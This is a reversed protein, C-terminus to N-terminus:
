QETQKPEHINGTVEYLHHSKIPLTQNRLDYENIHRIFEPAVYEIRATYKDGWSVIDGEYIDVNNKDKLGTFQDRTKSKYNNLMPNDSIVQYPDGNEIETLTFAQFIWHVGDTYGYRIKIERNM